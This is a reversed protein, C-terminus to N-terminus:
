SRVKSCLATVSMATMARESPSSFFDEMSKYGTWKMFHRINNIYTDATRSFRNRICQSLNIGGYMAICHVSTILGIVFLMGYGMKTDALQSPVLLNLIGMSQLMVYLSVIIVLMCVTNAINPEAAKKRRIVEYGLREIATIIEKLSITEENYVIDATANNYGM